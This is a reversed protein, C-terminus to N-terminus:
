RLANLTLSEDLLVLSPEFITRRSGSSLMDLRQMAAERKRDYHQRTQLVRVSEQMRIRVSITDRTWSNLRSAEVNAVSARSLGVCWKTYTYQAM